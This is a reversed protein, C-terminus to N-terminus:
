KARYYDLSADGYGFCEAPKTRLSKLAGCLLLPVCFETARAAKSENIHDQYRQDCGHGDESEPEDDLQRRPPRGLGM